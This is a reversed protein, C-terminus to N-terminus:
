LKKIKLIKSANLVALFSVGVDAFIAMWMNAFGLIGLIMVLFKIGLSLYINQFVVKKNLKAIKLLEIIKSPEDKIFVIDSAEIAIDSGFGGMAIGIDAMSLSPADNIGDGVFIVGSSKEKIAKLKNLKEEPLLKTFIYSEKVGILRGIKKGISENDGTLIYSSLNNKNLYAITKKSDSKIEDEFEIYGLLINNKGVFLISNEGIEKFNGMEINFDNMLKQNGVFINEGNYICKVGKGPIEQYNKIDEEVVDFNKEKIIAKALPHNSYYEVIIATKLIEEESSNLGVIKEIKFEGKTLTGTKDFVITDIETLKELYNGGKILIGNKSALGISSFFTLPISLVLACPCSIVLFILARGFWLNFNGLFIPFVFAVIVASFVVFPTYYKAFKTIFKESEAKKEGSEEVMKIIKSIASNEYLNIVEMELAGDININGSLIVDGKEVSKPLSEGTLASTNLSSNGKIIKGDVPIKEGPKVLIIDGIKLLNPLVEIFEGGAIKLNAVTAKLELLNKISKRSSDLARDQFYEGIKYFVMVGIAEQYEGLGIAGITAISMLFNEDLFDKNKLNIVSNYLVDYGSILYAFILLSIKYSNNNIFFTFIYIIISFLFLLKKLEIKGRKEESLNKVINESIGCSSCGCSHNKDHIHHREHHSNIHDTSCNGCSCSNKNKEM